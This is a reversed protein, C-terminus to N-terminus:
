VQKVLQVYPVKGSAKLAPLKDWDARGLQMMAADAPQKLDLFEGSFDEAERRDERDKNWASRTMCILQREVITGIPVIERCIVKGNRDDASSASAAAQAPHPVSALVAIAAGILAKGYAM